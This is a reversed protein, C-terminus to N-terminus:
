FTVPPPSVREDVCLCMCTDARPLNDMMCRRFDGGCFCLLEESLMQLWMGEHIDPFGEGEREGFGCTGDGTSIKSVTLFLCGYAGPTPSEAVAQGGFVDCPCYRSPFCMVLCQTARLFNSGLEKVSLLLVCSLCLYDRCLCALGCSFPCAAGRVSVVASSPRGTESLFM